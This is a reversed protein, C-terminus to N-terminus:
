NLYSCMALKRFLIITLLPYTQKQPKEDLLINKANMWEILYDQVLMSTPKVFTGTLIANQAEILAKQAEKKTPFGRRKQQKRKGNEYRELVYYWTTGEKRVSGAM